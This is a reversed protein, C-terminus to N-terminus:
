LASLSCAMVSCGVRDWFSVFHNSFKVAYLVHVNILVFDCSVLEAQSITQVQYYLEKLYMEYVTM